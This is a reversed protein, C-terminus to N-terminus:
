ADAVEKSASPPNPFTRATHWNGPFRGHNLEMFECLTSVFGLPVNIHQVDADNKKNQELWGGVMKEIDARTARVSM